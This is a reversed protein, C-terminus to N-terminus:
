KSGFGALNFNVTFSQNGPRQHVALDVSWCKHRYEATYVSELFDRRDFSYRATYSLNLPRILKTSVHGEFYEVEKRAMQYAAGVSNGKHDDADIGAVATSLYNEYFNYRSDFTVRLQKSLWTESELMLDSWPRQSEVLTLLDRREGDLAYDASLKIRSLERYETTDASAFKGNLLSTASLTIMNKQIIRDAYDYFPLRQQDRQPALNYSIEPIIEHRIKKLSQFNTDYIRNLSTSLRVGAEPVLDGTTSQVDTGNGNNNTAYGRIHAGAFITTHLYGNQSQLLNLRPFLHLRQGSDGSDRQLNDVSGDLDFYLPTSFISQRVTAIGVSPLTQLTKSNDAAYLDQSYRLYSNVASNQWTKLTNVITDSSQRNYESNKNGFDSLFTRDSTANVEMRINAGGAFLEKHKQALQWRWRDEQRDFIQYTNIDGESERTRIYRYGLGTGVGRRSMIDVDLELDQSPSIAWYAPIVLQSGKTKSYGFQPLLLGSTKELVVPFAIWPLYLVPIDKVYFIVNRATAYGLMNVNLKDAGFKWSPDPTDCSTLETGTATFENENIRVLKESAIKVGTEPVTLLTSNMEAIGTDMNMTLTEGKLVTSEKTMVVSGSAYLMHTPASYRTKDAVLRMGKWIVVVNGEATYVGDALSQNMHDANIHINEDPYPALAAWSSSASSCITCFFLLYYITKM